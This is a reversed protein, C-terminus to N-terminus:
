GEPPGTPSDLLPEREGEMREVQSSASAKKELCEVIKIAGIIILAPKALACALRGLAISVRTLPLLSLFYGVGAAMLVTPVPSQRIRKECNGYSEKYADGVAQCAKEFTKEVSNDESM